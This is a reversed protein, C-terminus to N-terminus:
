NTPAADGGRSGAGSIRARRDRRRRDYRAVPDRREPKNKLLLTRRHVSLLMGVGALMVVLSSGGFSIFPLPLGTPPLIATMVAINLLAKVSVWITVGSALLAGFADPARRAIQFGRVAFAVYLLMVMGAGIVGLEEGIVAFISDTHSAPLAAFKQVSEGLGRGTWGGSFFANLAQQTHYSTRTPDALGAQYTEIRDIAYSPLLNLSLAIVTLLVIGGGAFAIQRMDAGAIFFMLGSVAFIVVATSLDPQAMVLGGVIGVLIVFPVFGYALSRIRMNKSGLWASMYIILALESFEGPQFRGDVLSRRAGILTDDGFLLVAILFSIAALMIIVALRKLIRYDLLIFVSMALLGIVLNQVHRMLLVTETGWESVSWFFTTSYVMMLGIALLLGMILLLSRDLSGLLTVRREKTETEAPYPTNRAGGRPAGKIYPRNPAAGPALDGPDDIFEPRNIPTEAM